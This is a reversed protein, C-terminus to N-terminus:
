RKLIILQERARTIATYMWRRYIDDNWMPLREEILLVRGWESGQSKHVTICYAFDFYDLDDIKEEVNTYKKGFQDLEIFGEFIFDSM